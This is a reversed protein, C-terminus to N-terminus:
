WRISYQNLRNQAKAYGLRAARKYYDVAVNWDRVVGEGYDSMYGLNYLSYMNNQRAAQEYWFRATAYDIGKGGIYGFYYLAGLANQAEAYRQEASKRYWYEAQSYDRNVGSGYHYALGLKYQASADGLEAGERYWRAAEYLNRNVGYGNTYLEGLNYKAKAIGAAAAREYYERAKQYDREVGLGNQYLAGINSLSLMYGKDAAKWYWRLAESYDQQTGTGTGYMYGLHNIAIPTMFQSDRNKYLISFAETYEGKDALEVGKTIEGKVTQVWFWGLLAGLSAITVFVLLLKRLTKPKQVATKKKDDTKIADDTRKKQDDISGNLDNKQGNDILNLRGNTNDKIQTKEDDLEIVSPKVGMLADKFEDCSQFRDAPNKQTAKQIAANVHDSVGPIPPLPKKVIEAQVTYSSGYSDDYPKRGTLLAYLTVGLSYIDTRYDIAKPTTIQEPSMYQPSGINTHTETLELNANVIKAIGFDMVKIQGNRTLFLNSPKIDRHIYNKQHVYTMADLIDTFWRVAQQESVPGQEILYRGLDEGDLYEMIIAMTNEDEHFDFVQRINPHELSVMMKAELRFREALKEKGEMGPKLVKIAFRKGLFNEAYWVTAMGGEGLKQSLTYTLFQTQM